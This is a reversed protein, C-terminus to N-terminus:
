KTENQEKLLDRIDTLLKEESSPAPPTKPEEDKKKYFTNVLKIFCFICFAIIIFDIINQIFIGYTIKADGITIALGKFDLGGIIMGIIPMLIDNVLSSVIKGFAVGIIVGTAMDIVNGKMAFNKFDNLFKNM